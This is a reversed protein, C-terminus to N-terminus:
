TREFKPILAYEKELAALYKRIRKLDEFTRQTVGDTPFAKNKEDYSDERLLYAPHLIPIMDYELHVEKKDVDKQPFIHGPIEASNRDGTIKASSKPSSFVIGHNETIAWDRGRALAKLAIKGVPIIIWPDIIYILQHVRRLCADREVTSPDRNKGKDDTPRCCVVNTVYLEEWKFGSNKLLARLLQGSSGCFPEGSEDEEEGPGEGILMLRADPSGMGFVLNTRTTSLPCAQCNEWEQFIQYLQAEKWERSWPKPGSM